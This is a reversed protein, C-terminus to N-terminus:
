STVWTVSEVHRDGAIDHGLSFSCGFPYPKRQDVNCHECPTSNMIVGKPKLPHQHHIWGRDCCRDHLEKADMEAV